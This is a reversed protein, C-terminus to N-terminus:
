HGVEFVLVRGQQQWDLREELDPRSTCGELVFLTRLFPKTLMTIHTPDLDDAADAALLHDPAKAFRTTVYVYQGALAVLNAVARRLSRVPLHELVERCIVLDFPSGGFPNTRLSELAAVGFYPSGLWDKWEVADVGYTEVGREALMRVLHGPGCGADLVRSPRFTEVILDPHKGEAQVRGVYSYDTVPTWAKPTPQDRVFAEFRAVAQEDKM